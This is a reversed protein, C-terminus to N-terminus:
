TDIAPRQNHYIKWDFTEILADIIEHTPVPIDLDPEAITSAWYEERIRRVTQLPDAGGRGSGDGAEDEAM